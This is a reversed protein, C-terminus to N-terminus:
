NFLDHSHHQECVSNKHHFPFSAIDLCQHILLTSISKGSVGFSDFTFIDSISPTEELMAVVHALIADHPWYEKPGDQLREDSM